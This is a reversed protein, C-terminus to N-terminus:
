WDCEVWRWVLIRQAQVICISRSFYDLLLACIINVRRLCIHYELFMELRYVLGQQRIVIAGALIHLRHTYVSISNKQSYHSHSNNSIPRTQTHSNFHHLSKKKENSLFFYIYIYTTQRDNKDNKIQIYYSGHM